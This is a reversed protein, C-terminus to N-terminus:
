GNEFELTGPQPIMSSRKPLTGTGYSFIDFPQGDGAVAKGIM